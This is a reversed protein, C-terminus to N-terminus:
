KHILSLYKFEEQSLLEDWVQVPCFSTRNEYFLGMYVTIYLLFAFLECYLCMCMKNEENRFLQCEEDATQLAPMLLFVADCSHTGNKLLIFIHQHSFIPKTQVLQHQECISISLDNNIKM